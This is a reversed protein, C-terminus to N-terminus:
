LDAGSGGMSQKSRMICPDVALHFAVDCRCGFAFFIVVNLQTM